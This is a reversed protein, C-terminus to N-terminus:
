NESPAGFIRLSSYRGTEPYYVSPINWSISVKRKARGGRRLEEEDLEADSYRNRRPGFVSDLAAEVARGGSEVHAEEDKEFDGLNAFLGASYDGFFGEESGEEGREFVDFIDSFGVFDRSGFNFSIPPTPIVPPIPFTSLVPEVADYYLTYNGDGSIGNLGRYISASSGLAGAVLSDINLVGGPDSVNAVSGGHDGSAGGPFVGAQTSLGASFTADDWWLDPTLYVEDDRGSLEGNRAFPAVFDAPATVFEGGFAENLRTTGDILNLSRSPVYIELQSGAGFGGSSFISNTATLSGAGGYFPFNRSVAIQTNGQTPQRSVEPDAHGILTDTFDGSGGIAVIINGSRAGFAESQFVAASTGGPRYIQDGNGIMAYNNLGFDANGLIDTATQQAGGEATLDGGVLVTINGEIDGTIGPGGNGIQAFAGWVPADNVGAASTGGKLLLDNAVVVTVNGEQDANIVDGNSGFQNEVAVHGIKAFHFGSGVANQNQNNPSTITQADTGPDGPAGETRQSATISLDGGVYVSINGTSPADLQYGGNGIAAFGGVTSAGLVTNGAVEYWANSTALLILDAGVTVTIDGNFGTAVGGRRAADNGFDSAFGHGIQASSAVAGKGGLLEVSGTAVVTIDSSAATGNVDEDDSLTVIDLNDRIGGHGIVVPNLQSADPIGFINDANGVNGYEGAADANLRINGGATVNIDGVLEIANQNHATTNADVRDSNGVGHGIRTWRQVGNGNELDIDGGASVTIIGLKDAYDYSSNQYRLTDTNIGGHGIQVGVNDVDFGQEIGPTVNFSDIRANAFLGQESHALKISGGANVTIDSQASSLTYNVTQAIGGAYTVSANTGSIVTTIDTSESDFYFNEAREFDGGSQGWDDTTQHGIKALADEYIGGTLNIDGEVDVDIAGSFSLFGSRYGGHGILAYDYTNETEARGAGGNNRGFTAATTVGTINLGGGATVSIDGAIFSSTEYDALESGGHGIQAFDYIGNGAVLDVDGGVNVEIDGTLTMFTLSRNLSTGREGIITAAGSNFRIDTTATGDEFFGQDTSNIRFNVMERNRDGRNTVYGSEEAWVAFSTGGHGVMAFRRDRRTALGLDTPSNRQDPTTFGRLQLGGTVSTVTIDGDFHNVVSGDLAEITIAGFTPDSLTRGGGRATALTDGPLYDPNRTIGDALFPTGVGSASQAINSTGSFLEGRRLLPDNFDDSSGFFRIQADAVSTPDWYAYGATRHGITATNRTQSGAILDIDGNAQVTIDGYYSGFQGAGGHGIQAHAESGSAQEDNTPNNISGLRQIGKVIIKGNGSSTATVVGNNAYNVSTPDVGALVNINGHVASLRGISMGVRNNNSGNMSWRRVNQGNQVGGNNLSRNDSWGAADGGHGVTASSNTRGGATIEVNGAAILNIDATSNIDIAGSAPNRGGAGNEPRLGGLNDESYGAVNAKSHEHIQQWWWNGVRASNYHNAYPIFTGNAEEADEGVGTGPLVGDGNHDITGDLVGFANVAYVGDVLGDGDIDRENTGAIGVVPNDDLELAQSDLDLDYANNVSDLRQGFIQGSDHFGVQAWRSEDNTDAATVFISFAALSTDGYRSGVEVHRDMDSNGVYISGSNEAFSGEEVYYDFVQQPTAAAPNTSSQSLGDVPFDYINGFPISGASFDDEAGGWGAILSISGAGSTRIHNEIVIDGGAFAAFSAKSNTWQVSLNRPHNPDDYDTSYFQEGIVGLSAGTTAQGGANMGALDVDDFIIDSGAGETMVIVSTGGELLSNITAIEIENFGAANNFYGVNVTGPDFLVTGAEGSLANAAISGGLALREKGSVEVLGGSGTAGFASASIDGRFITDHNAWVIVSGADGLSADASLRAGAAITTLDAERLGVDMGRFEGGVRIKGGASRGNVGLVADSGIEVETATVDIRGGDGASASAYVAGNVSSTGVSDISVTGGSTVGKVSIMSEATQSVSDGSVSVSGGRVAGDAILDGGVTVSGSESTVQIDGGSAGSQAFIGYDREPDTGQGLNINGSAGSAMLRVRGNSRTAGTARVAGTNNIALAYVNGHAKMEASAGSIIGSNNIGVGEYDSAGQVTIKAEGVQNLLIDGGSGLAITGNMAGIQGENDVFGGMLIVDGGSSSIVGFNSVGTMSEGYFRNTGGNLVDENDIDLTSMTLMAAVDITGGEHVVIGNPNIVMVSGQAAQLAGYIATPNGSIVRNLTVANAGQNIRTIEDQQISFSQWNIIAAQSLNNIDLSATGLGQFNVNGAIVQEGYPNAHLPAGFATLALLLASAIWRKARNSFLKMKM